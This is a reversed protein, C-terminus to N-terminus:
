HAARYVQVTPGDQNAQRPVVLYLRGSQADFLSTRAGKVTRLKALPEYQNVNVQQIVALFGEGCSAYIRKRDADFWVDDTDGPIPVRAVEKGTETDLVVLMPKARCGVFLRHNAEDLAMPYNGAAQHLTYRDVVENKRTDIVSVQKTSPTNLYLRSGGQELQFSEPQGPVKIEARLELAKGDIVALEKEAHAVYVLHTHPDYRVNDADDEFKFTKLLTYDRGDFAHCLGGAEDGVFIRDLDPAYAIGQIGKQGPIQKILRGAKLDVIDLSSNAMNAVFLRGHRHDIALHDLRGGPGKLRITGVRELRPTDGAHLAMASYLSLALTWAIARRGINRDAYM